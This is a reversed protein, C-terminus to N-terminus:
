SNATETGPLITSLTDSTPPDETQEPESEPAPPIPIELSDGNLVRVGGVGPVDALDALTGFDSETVPALVVLTTKLTDCTAAGQALLDRIRHVTASSGDWRAQAVVIAPAGRHSVETLLSTLHAKNQPTATM